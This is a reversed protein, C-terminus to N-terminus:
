SARGRPRLRQGPEVPLDVVVVLKEVTKGEILVPADQGVSWIRKLRKAVHIVGGDVGDSEVEVGASVGVANTEAVGLETIRDGIRNGPDLIKLGAGLRSSAM